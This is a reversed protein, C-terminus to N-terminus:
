LLLKVKDVFIGQVAEETFFMRCMNGEFTNM